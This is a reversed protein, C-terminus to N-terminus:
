RRVPMFKTKVTSIEMSFQVDINSLDFGVAANEAKWCISGHRTLRQNQIIKSM